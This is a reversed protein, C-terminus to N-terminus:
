LLVRSTCVSLRVTTTPWGGTCINVAIYLYGTVWCKARRHGLRVALRIVPWKRRGIGSKSIRLGRGALLRSYASIINFARYFKDSCVTKRCANCSLNRWIKTFRIFCLFSWILLSNITVKIVPFSWKLFDFMLLIEITQFNEGCWATRYSVLAQCPSFLNTLNTLTTM